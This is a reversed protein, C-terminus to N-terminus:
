HAVLLAPPRIRLSVAEASRRLLVVIRGRVRRVRIAVTRRKVTVTLGRAIRDGRVSVGAPLRLTM